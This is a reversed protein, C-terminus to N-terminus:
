WGVRASELRQGTDISECPSLLSAAAVVVVVTPPIICISTVIIFRTSATKSSFLLRSTDLHQPLPTM